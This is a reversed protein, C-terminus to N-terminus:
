ITAYVNQYFGLTCFVWTGVAVWFLLHPTYGIFMKGSGKGFMDSDRVTNLAMGGTVRTGADIGERIAKSMVSDDLSEATRAIILGLVPLLLSWGTGETKTPLERVPPGSILGAHITRQTPSM